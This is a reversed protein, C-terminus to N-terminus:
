DEATSLERSDGDGFAMWRTEWPKLDIRDLPLGTLRVTAPSGGLNQACLVRRKEASGAPPSRLLAFVAGDSDLVQQAAAPSFAEEAQRFALLRKIGHYV